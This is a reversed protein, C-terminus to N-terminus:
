HLKNSKRASIKGKSKINLIVMTYTVVCPLKVVNSFNNERL